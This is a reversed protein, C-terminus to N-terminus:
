SDCRMHFAELNRIDEHLLTWAELGYVAFHVAYAPRTYALKTQLQLRIQRWVKDMFHM